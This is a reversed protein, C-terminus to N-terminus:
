HSLSEDEMSLSEDFEENGYSDSVEDDGRGGQRGTGSSGIGSRAKQQGTRERGRASVARRLEKVEESLSKLSSKSELLEEQHGVLAKLEESVKHSLDKVMAEVNHVTGSKSAGLNSGSGSRLALQCAQSLSQQHEQMERLDREVQAAMEDVRAEIRAAATEDDGAPLVSENALAPIGSPSVNAKADSIEQQHSVLRQLEDAVQRQLEKIQSEVHVPLEATDADVESHMRMGLGRASSSESALMLEQRVASTTADIAEVRDLTNQVQKSLEEGKAKEAEVVTRLSSLSEEAAKIRRVAEASDSESATDLQQRKFDDRLRQM